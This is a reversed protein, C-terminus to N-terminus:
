VLNAVKGGTFGKSNHMRKEFGDFLISLRLICCREGDWRIFKVVWWMNGSSVRGISVVSLIKASVLVV